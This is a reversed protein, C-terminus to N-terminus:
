DFLFNIFQQYWTPDSNSRDDYYSDSENNNNNRRNSNNNNSNGDSDSDGISRSYSNDRSSRHNRSNSHRSSGRDDEDDSAIKQKKNQSEGGNTIKMERVSNGVVAIGGKADLKKVHNIVTPKSELQQKQLQILKELHGLETQNTKNNVVNSVMVEVFDDNRGPAQIAIGVVPDDSNHQKISALGSGDAYLPVGAEIESRDGRRIRVGAHGFYVVPISGNSYPNGITHPRHILGTVVSAGLPDEPRHLSCRLGGESSSLYVVDGAVPEEDGSYPLRYAIDAFSEKTLEDVDRAALAVLRLFRSLKCARISMGVRHLNGKESMNGKKRQCIYFKQECKNKCRRECVCDDSPDTPDKKFSLWLPLKKGSAELAAMKSLLQTKIDWGNQKTMAIWAHGDLDRKANETSFLKNPEFSRNEFLPMNNTVIPDTIRKVCPGMDKTSTIVYGPEKCSFWETLDALAKESPSQQLSEMLALAETCDACPPASAPTEVPPAPGHVHHKRCGYCLCSCVTFADDSLCLDYESDLIPWSMQLNFESDSHKEPEM